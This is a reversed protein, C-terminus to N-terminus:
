RKRRYSMIAKALELDEYDDIDVSDDRPMIIFGVEGNTLTKKKLFNEKSTIYFAGNEAFWSEIDQTRKKNGMTFNKPIGNKNWYFGKTENVSLISDYQKEKFKLFGKLLYEMKLLPSTAQVLAFDQVDIEDLFHKIVSNTSATDTALETPRNIIKAGYAQSVRKIDESDTSVYVNDTIKLSEKLVYSILPAGCLDIINKNLIRKSGGRAPILIKM